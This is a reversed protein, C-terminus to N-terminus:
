RSVVRGFQKIELEDCRRQAEREDTPKKREKFATFWTVVMERASRANEEKVGAYVRGSESVLVDHSGGSPLYNTKPTRIGDIPKFVGQNGRAKEERPPFALEIEAYTFKRWDAWVVQTWFPEEKCHWSGPMRLSHGPTLCAQVNDRSRISVHGRTPVEGLIFPVFHVGAKREKAAEATKPLHEQIVPGGDTDVRVYATKAGFFRMWEDWVIGQPEYAFPAFLELNVWRPPKCAESGSLTRFVNHILFHIAAKQLKTREGASLEDLLAKADAMEKISRLCGLIQRRTMEKQM